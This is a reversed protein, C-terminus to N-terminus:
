GLDVSQVTNNTKLAEALATAGADSIRNCTFDVESYEHLRPLDSLSRAIM